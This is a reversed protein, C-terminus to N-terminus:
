VHARGIEASLAMAAGLMSAIQANHGCAHAAGSVRDAKPHNTCTVADLEGMVAVRALSRRGKMNGKVGTVALGERCEIGLSSLEEAVLRATEFERYGMEPMEAIKEASEIIKYSKENIEEIIKKKIESIEM